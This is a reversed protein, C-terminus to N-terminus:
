FIKGYYLAILTLDNDGFEEWVFCRLGVVLIDNQDGMIHSEISLKTKKNM